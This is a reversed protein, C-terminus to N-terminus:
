INRKANTERGFLQSTVYRILSYLPLSALNILGHHSGDLFLFQSNFTVVHPVSQLAFIVITAGIVGTYICECQEGAGESGQEDAMRM